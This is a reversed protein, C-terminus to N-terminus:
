NELKKLDNTKIITVFHSWEAEPLREDYYVTYTGGSYWVGLIAKSSTGAITYLRGDHRIFGKADNENFHYDVGYNPKYSERCYGYLIQSGGCYVGGIVMYTSDSGNFDRVQTNTLDPTIDTYYFKGTRVTVPYGNADEYYQSEGEEFCTLITNKGTYSVKVCRGNAIQEYM